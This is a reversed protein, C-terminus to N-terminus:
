RVVKFVRSTSTGLHAGRARLEDIKAQVAKSAGSEVGYKIKLRSVQKEMVGAGQSSWGAHLAGLARAAAMYKLAQGTAPEEALIADIEEDQLQASATDTDGILLRVWDRNTGLSSDYTASM